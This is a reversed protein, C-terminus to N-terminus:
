PALLSGELLFLHGTSMVLALRNADPRVLRVPTGAPLDTANVRIVAQDIQARTKGDYSTVALVFEAGQSSESVFFVKGTTADAVRAASPSGCGSIDEPHNAIPDLVKGAAIDYVRGISDMLRGRPADVYLDRGLDYLYSTYGYPLLLQADHLGAADVRLSKIGAMDEAYLTGADAGWAVSKVGAGESPGFTASRAVTDDYVTLEQDGGYCLGIPFFTGRAVAITHPHAPAVAISRAFAFSDLTTNGGLPITAEVSLDAAHVRAVSDSFQLGAYLTSCDDSVALTTPESGVHVSGAIAHTAADLRMVRNPLWASVGSLAVYLNHCGDAAVDNAGIDLVTYELSGKTGAVTGGAVVPLTTPAPPVGGAAAFSGHAILLAQSGAMAIGDTDWAILRGGAFTAAGDFTISDIAAYTDPDFSTIATGDLYGGPLLHDDVSFVKGRSLAAAHGIANGYDAFRGRQAVPGSLDMVRGDDQYLLHGALQGASAGSWPYIRTIVLGDDSVAADMYENGSGSPTALLSAGDPRWAVGSFSVYRHTQGGFQQPGDLMNPRTVGDDDLVVGLDGTEGAALHSALVAVRGAATPSVSIQQIWTDSTGINFSIDASFDGADVRQIAGGQGDPGFGGAYAYRGDASLALKHGAAALARSATVRGTLPDIAVISSPYTSATSATLAVFRHRTADWAVDNTALAVQVFSLSTLGSDSVATTATPAPPPASVIDITVAGRATNRGTSDVCQLTFSTRASLPGVTSSGSLDLPGTWGGSATCSAANTSSWSLKVTAGPSVVATDPHLAVEVPTAVAPPPPSPPPPAPTSGGGGGCSATTAAIALFLARLAIRRPAAFATASPIDHIM